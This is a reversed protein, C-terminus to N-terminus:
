ESYASPGERTLERQGEGGQAGDRSESSRIIKVSSRTLRRLRKWLGGLQIRLLPTRGAARGPRRVM